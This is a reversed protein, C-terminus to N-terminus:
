MPYGYNISREFFLSGTTQEGCGVAGCAETSTTLRPALGPHARLFAKAVM